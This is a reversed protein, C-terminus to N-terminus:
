LGPDPDDGGLRPICERFFDRIDFFRDADTTFFLLLPARATKQTGEEHSNNM